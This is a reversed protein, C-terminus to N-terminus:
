PRQFLKAGEIRLQEEHERRKEARLALRAAWEEAIRAAAAEAEPTRPVRVKRGSAEYGLVIHRDEDARSRILGKVSKNYRRSRARGKASANYAANSARRPGSRSLGDILEVM